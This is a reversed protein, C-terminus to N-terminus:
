RIRDYVICQLLLLIDFIGYGKEKPTVVLITDRQEEFGVVKIKFDYESAPYEIPKIDPKVFGASIIMGLGSAVFLVISAIFMGDSWDEHFCILLLALSSVFLCIFIIFLTM